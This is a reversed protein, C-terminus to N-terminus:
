TQHLKLPSLSPSRFVGPLQILVPMVIWYSAGRACAPFLPKGKKRAGHIMDTRYVPPGRLREARGVLPM